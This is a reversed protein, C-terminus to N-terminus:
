LIEFLNCTLLGIVLMNTLLITNDVKPLSKAMKSIEREEKLICDNVPTSKEAQLHLIRKSWTKSTVDLLKEFPKEFM